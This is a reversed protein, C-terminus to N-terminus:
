RYKPNTELKLGRKQPTWSRWPLKEDIAVMQIGNARWDFRM